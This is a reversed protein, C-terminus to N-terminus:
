FAQDARSNEGYSFPSYNSENKKGLTNTDRLIGVPEAMIQVRTVTEM